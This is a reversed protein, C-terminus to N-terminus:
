FFAEGDNRVFQVFMGADDGMVMRAGRVDIYSGKTLNKIGSNTNTIFYTGASNKGTTIPLQGLPTVNRGTRPIADTLDLLEEVMEEVLIKVENIDM